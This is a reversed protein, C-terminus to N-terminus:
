VRSSGGIKGTKVGHYVGAGVAAVVAATAAIAIIAVMSLSKTKSTMVGKQSRNTFNNNRTSMFTMTGVGRVEALRDYYPTPKNNADRVGNLFHCSMPDNGSNKKEILMERATYCNATSQNLWALQMIDEKSFISEAKKDEDYEDDARVEAEAAEKEEEPTMVFKSRNMPRLKNDAYNSLFVINSRDTGQRGEGANGNNNYETGCWQFHVYDTTEVKLETPTFDYEVCNRVQAINGRKGRVNLNHIVRNKLEDPRRKIRFVQTRDEFTRGFQATNIAHRLPMAQQINAPELEMEMAAEPDLLEMPYSGFTYVPNDEMKENDDVDFDFDIDTTSINYRLRLVCRLEDKSEDESEPVTGYPITWKFHAFSDSWEENGDGRVSTDGLRNDKQPAAQECAPAGWENEKPDEPWKLASAWSGECVWEHDAAECEVEQNYMAAAMILARNEMNKKMDVFDKPRCWCKDKVNQSESQFYECRSTNSVLVALDIWPSPHWYPWYDREETCEFGYRDSNPEQRTKTAGGDVAVKQDATFLGENRNRAKCLDYWHESEHYGYTSFKRQSCKCNDGNFQGRAGGDSLILDDCVVGNLGPNFEGNCQEYWRVRRQTCTDGFTEYIALPNGDLEVPRDEGPRGLSRGDTLKYPNVERGVEEFAFIDAGFTNDCGIQIVHECHVSELNEPDDKSMEGNGCAHQSYFEISLDTGEYYYMETDCWGYGGAANNETDYLRNGNQRNNNKEDCRDNAGSPAHLYVDALASAALLTAAAIRKVM